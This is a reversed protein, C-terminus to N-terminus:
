RPVFEYADGEGRALLRKTADLRRQTMRIDSLVAAAEGTAAIEGNVRRQAIGDLSGDLRSLEDTLAAIKDRLRQATQAKM